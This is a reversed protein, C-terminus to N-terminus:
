NKSLVQASNVITALGHVLKRAMLNWIFNGLEKLGWQLRNCPMEYCARQSHEACEVRALWQKLEKVFNPPWEDM